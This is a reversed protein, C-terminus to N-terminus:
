DIPSRRGSDAYVALADLAEIEAGDVRLPNVELAALDPGLDMAARTIATITAALQDLDAPTAGRFGQLLPALKLSRLMEAVEDQSVPLLRLVSDGLVETATGGFGLALIPGWERDRAIGVILEVGRPRMPSVIVGEIQADPAHTRVREIIAQFASGAAEPGHVDLVVGGVETKHAIDASAIKLVVGGDIDAAFRAADEASRALNAPIVNVGYPRLFELTEREGIPRRAASGTAEPPRKPAEKLLRESWRQLHALARVGFDLNPVFCTIGIEAFYARRAETMTDLTIGAVVPRRGALRYGEVMADIDRRLGLVEVPTSPVVMTAVVLGLGPDRVLAPIVTSWIGPDNVVAGTVDLPNLTSAYKPLAQRLAARTEPAFAPTALGHQAALDSYIACAGGSLSLM